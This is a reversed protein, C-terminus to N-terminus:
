YEANALVKNLDHVGSLKEKTQVRFGRKNFYNRLNNVQLDEPKLKAEKVHAMEDIAKELLVADNRPLTPAIQAFKRMDISTGEDDAVAEVFDDGLVAAIKAMPLKVLQSMPYANGTTLSIYDARLDSADKELIDFLMEEPTDLSGERYYRYLGTERDVADIVGAL